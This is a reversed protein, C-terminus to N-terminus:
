KEAEESSSTEESSSKGDTQASANEAAVKKTAVKATGTETDEGSFLSFLIGAAYVGIKALTVFFSIWNLARGMNAGLSAIGSLILLLAEIATFILTAIFVTKATKHLDKHATKFFLFGGAVAFAIFHVYWSLWILAKKWRQSWLGKM